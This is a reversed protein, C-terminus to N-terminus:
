KPIYPKLIRTEKFEKKNKSLYKAVCMNKKLCSLCVTSCFGLCERTIDTKQEKFVKMFLNFPIKKTPKLPIPSIVRTPNKRYRRQKQTRKRHNM